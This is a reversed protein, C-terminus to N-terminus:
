INEIILKRLNNLKEIQITNYQIKTFYKEYIINYKTLIERNEPIYFPIKSLNETNIAQQTTGNCNNDRQKIFDNSFIYSLVFYMNDLECQLGIFGTSLILKDIQNQNIDNFFYFKNTFQMKPFWISYIKPQMNARSPKDFQNIITNYSNIYDYSMDATAIYIKDGTFKKLGSSIIKFLPNNLVDYSILKTSNIM